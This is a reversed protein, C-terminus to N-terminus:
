NNINQILLITNKDDSKKLTDMLLMTTVFAAQVKSPPSWMYLRRVTARLSKSSECQGILNFCKM